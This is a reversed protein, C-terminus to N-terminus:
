RVRRGYRRASASSEHEWFGPVAFLVSLVGELSFDRSVGPKARIWLEEGVDLCSDDRDSVICAFDGVVRVWGIVDGAARKQGDNNCHDDRRGDGGEEDEVAQLEPPSLPSLRAPHGNTASWAILPSVVVGNGGRVMEAVRVMHPHGGLVGLGM